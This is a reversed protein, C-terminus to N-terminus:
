KIKANNMLSVLCSFQFSWKVRMRIKTGNRKMGKYDKSTVGRYSIRLGFLTRLGLGSGSSSYSRGLEGIRTAMGTARVCCGSNDGTSSGFDAIGAADRAFTADCCCSSGSSSRGDRLM